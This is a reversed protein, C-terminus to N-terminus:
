AAKFRTAVGSVTPACRNWVDPKINADPAGIRSHMLYESLLVMYITQGAAPESAPVTYTFHHRDYNGSIRSNGPTVIEPGRISLRRGDPHCWSGDIADANAATGAWVLGAIAVVVGMSLRKMGPASAPKPKNM